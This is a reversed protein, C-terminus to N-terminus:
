ISIGLTIPCHDSGQIDSQITADILADKLNDSAFFYDIRWGVNRERARTRMHWWTYNDPEQNFHRFTDIFGKNVFKDMWAREEPLFGSYGENDKPRALDIEKHATNFDGCVIIKKGAKRAKSVHKLFADYFAMKYKLREPRAKGNPYYINYIVLDDYHAIVTRGEQDFDKVGLGYEITDPEHKLYLAVGSYGRKEAHSFYSCYGEPAKLEATLQDESIKTEQIGVIDAKDEALWQFFGKKAAARLGNVNWSSLRLTKSKM